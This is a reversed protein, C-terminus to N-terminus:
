FVLKNITNMSLIINSLYESWERWRAIEYYRLQNTVYHRTKETIQLNLKEIDASSRRIPAIM